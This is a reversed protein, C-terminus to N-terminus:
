LVENREEYKENRLDREWIEQEGALACARPHFLHKSAFTCGKKAEDLPKPPQSSCTELAGHSLFTSSSFATAFM